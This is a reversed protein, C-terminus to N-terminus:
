PLPLAWRIRMIMMAETPKGDAGIAPQFIGRAKTVACSRQDLSAHGSSRVVACDIARGDAGVRVRISTAGQANARQADIPYDHDSLWSITPGITQPPSLLSRYRQPDVGWERLVEAECDRLAKVAGAARPLPVEVLAKGEQEVALSTSAAFQNLFDPSLGSIQFARGKKDALPPFDTVKHRVGSPRLVLDATEPRSFSKENWHQGMLFLENRMGPSNQLVVTTPQPGPTERLLSCKDEGWDAVWSYKKGDAAAAPSAAFAGASAIMAVVAKM